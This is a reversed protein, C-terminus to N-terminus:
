KINNAINVFDITELEEARTTLSLECKTFLDEIEQKSMNNFNNSSLSNTMKKRRQAFAKHVLEFFVKENKVEYKRNKKLTIVASTVGPEPIFSSNPVIIDINANSFYDVMITLIGYEKSHSDATMREAVEKQVMVTISEICNSDELLQFIIPTTIYYPLNAVVKIGKFDIGKESKIKEVLTDIDVKLIDENLLTYNIRDKFRDELVAIMKPDIEVLLGYKATNLIYETLNGLGPGIEIVLDEETIDAASVIGQLINDDILFNQGYRKNAVINFKNMISRTKSLTNM